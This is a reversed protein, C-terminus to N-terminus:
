VNDIVSDYEEPKLSYRTIFDFLERTTMVDVGNRIIVIENDNYNDDDDNIIM